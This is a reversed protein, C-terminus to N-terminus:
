NETASTAYLRKGFLKQRKRPCIWPNPNRLVRTIEDELKVMNDVFVDVADHGRYTVHNETTEPSLGVVKYTFGSPIYKALKITSLKNPDLQCGYQRELISEFFGAYVVFPVRLQKSISNSGNKKRVRCRLGRPAMSNVTHYTSRWFIGKPLDMSVSTVTIISILIEM